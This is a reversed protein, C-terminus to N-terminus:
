SGIQDPLPVIESIVFPSDLREIQLEASTSKFLFLRDIYDIDQLFNDGNDKICDSFDTSFTVPIQYTYHDLTNAVNETTFRFALYDMKGFTLNNKPIQVTIYSIEGIRQITTNGGFSSPYLAGKTVDVKEVNCPIQLIFFAKTLNTRNQYLLNIHIEVDASGISSDFSRFIMLFTSNESKLIESTGFIFGNLLNNNEKPSIPLPYILFAAIIM